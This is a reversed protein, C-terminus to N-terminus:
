KSNILKYIKQALEVNLKKLIEYQELALSKNGTAMYAAGLNYYTDADAPKIRIAQKYSEIEDNYLGLNGYAVGLNCYADAFDPKIRIAQKYSKIAERNMGSNAYANGLGYYAEASDPNVKIIKKYEEISDPKPQSTRRGFKEAEKLLEDAEKLKKESEAQDGKEALLRAEAKKDLYMDKYFSGLNNSAVEYAPDIELAKKFEAEAEPYMKKLKYIMGLNNHASKEAQDLEISKRFEAEAKNILNMAEPYYGSNTNPKAAPNDRLTSAYEQEVIDLLRTGERYFNVGLNTHIFPSHPSTAAANEWYSLRDKFIRSHSFTLISLGIIVLAGIPLLYGRKLEIKKISQGDRKLPNRGDISPQLEGASRPELLGRILGTELVIIIFGILPLYIRPEMFYPIKSIKSTLFTPSLFLIFWLAGFIIFNFRIKRTVVLAIVLLLLTLYGFVFTSGKLTPMVSLNVPFLIKGLFIFTSPLDRWIAGLMESITVRNPNYFISQWALLWCIIVMAWGFVLTMMNLSLIKERAIILLYVLSMVIIVLGSEKTFLVLAAFLIHLGYYRWKKKETGSSDPYSGTVTKQRQSDFASVPELFSLLFIFSALIFVAVLSDNRGPIWCVAQTLVPHVTFVLAFFLSLKKSYKLRALLVFLLSSAIIHIIINSLHYMWPALGSIQADLMFSITLLPRYYIGVEAGFVDQRFTEFINSINKLFNYPEIILKDDDFYAFDFLVAQFYLLFGLSAIWVYPHWTKLFIDELRLRQTTGIIEPSSKKNEVDM